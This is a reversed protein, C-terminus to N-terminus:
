PGDPSAELTSWLPVSRLPLLMPSPAVWGRDTAGLITAAVTAPTPVYGRFGAHHERITVGHMGGNLAARAQDLLTRSAHEPELDHLYLAM